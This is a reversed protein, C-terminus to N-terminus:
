NEHTSRRLQPVTSMVVTPRRDSMRPVQWLTLTSDLPPVGILRNMACLLFEADQSRGHNPRDLAVKSAIRDAAEVGRIGTRGQAPVQATLDIQGRPSVVLEPGARRRRGLVKPPVTEPTRAAQVITRKTILSLDTGKLHQERTGARPTGTTDHNPAVATGM